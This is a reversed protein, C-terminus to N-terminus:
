PRLPAAAQVVHGDSDTRRRRLEAGEAIGYYRARACVGDEDFDLVLMRPRLHTFNTADYVHTRGPAAWSDIIFLPDNLHGETEAQAATKGLVKPNLLALKLVDELGDSGEFWRSVDLIRGDSAVRVAYFNEAKGLGASRYRFFRDATLRDSWTALHERREFASDAAVAPQGLLRREYRCADVATVTDAVAAAALGIPVARCDISGWTTVVLPCVLFSLAREYSM